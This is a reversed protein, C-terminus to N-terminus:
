CKERIKDERPAVGLNGRNMKEGIKEQKGCMWRLM